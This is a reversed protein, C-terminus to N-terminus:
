ELDSIFRPTKLFRVAVGRKGPDERDVAGFRAVRGKVQLHRGTFLNKSGVPLEISLLLESGIELKEHLASIFFADGPSVNVTRTAETAGTKRTEDGPVTVTMALETPIRRYRRRESGPEGESAIQAAKVVDEARCDGEKPERRKMGNMIASRLLVSMPSEERPM